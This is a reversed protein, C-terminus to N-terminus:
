YLRIVLSPSPSQPRRENLATVGGISSNSESARRKIHDLVHQLYPVTADIVPVCIHRSSGRENADCNTGSYLFVFSFRKVEATIKVVFVQMYVDIM